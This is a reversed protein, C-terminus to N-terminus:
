WLLAGGNKWFKTLVEIFQGVLNSNIQKKENGNGWIIWWAYYKGYNKWVNM